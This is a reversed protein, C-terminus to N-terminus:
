QATTADCGPPFVVNTKRFFSDRILPKRAFEPKAFSGPATFALKNTTLQGGLNREHSLMTRNKTDHHTSSCAPSTPDAKEFILDYLLPGDAQQSSEAATSLLQSGGQASAENFFQIANSTWKAEHSLQERWQLTRVTNSFEDRKSFDSSLFGKKKEQGSDVYRWKDVYKDGEAIYNYRKEFCADLTKGERPPATAFQKAKWREPLPEKPPLGLPKESSGITIYSTKEFVGVLAKEDTKNNNM